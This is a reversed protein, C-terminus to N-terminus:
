QKESYLTKNKNPRNLSGDRRPENSLRENMALLLHVHNPMVIREHIDVTQRNNLNKIEKECIKGVENLVMEKDIIKGFYEERDRTCITVFYVGSSSYDYRSARPNSRVPLKM